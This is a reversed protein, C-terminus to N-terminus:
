APRAKTLVFLNGALELVLGAVALPTWVYGEFVTSIMLAFVPFMVTTYGARGAGIRGLLTLYAWFAAVSSVLALWGLSVLYKATPEVVFAQGQAAAALTLALAGYVM